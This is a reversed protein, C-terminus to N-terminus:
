YTKTEPTLLGAYELFLLCVERYEGSDPSWQDAVQYRGHHSKELIWEAGDLGGLGRKSWKRWFEERDLTAALRDYDAPSLQKQERKLVNGPKYGGAGDLEIAYLTISSGEKEIRVSVPHHFTRLWTFRYTTEATREGRSLSPEEMARLQKSYWDRLLADVEPYTSDSVGAPFYYDNADPSIRRQAVPSKKKACGWGAILAFSVLGALAIKTRM